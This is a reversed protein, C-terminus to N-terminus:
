TTSRLTSSAVITSTSTYLCFFHSLPEKEFACLTHLRTRIGHLFSNPGRLHTNRNRTMRMSLKIANEHVAASKSRALHQRSFDPHVSLDRSPGPLASGRLRGSFHGVVVNWSSSANELGTLLGDSVQLRRCENRPHHEAMPQRSTQKDLGEEQLM